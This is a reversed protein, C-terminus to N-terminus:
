VYIFYVIYQKRYCNLMKFNNAAFQKLEINKISQAMTQKDSGSVYLVYIPISIMNTVHFLLVNQIETFKM